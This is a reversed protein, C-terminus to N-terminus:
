GLPAGAESDKRGAVDKTKEAQKTRQKPGWAELDKKMYRWKEQLRMEVEELAKNFEEDDDSKEEATRGLKKNLKKNSVEDWFEGESDMYYVADESNGDGKGM